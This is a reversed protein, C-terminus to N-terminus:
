SIPCGPGLSTTKGSACVVKFAIVSNLVKISSPKRASESLASVLSAAEIADLFPPILNKDCNKSKISVKRSLQRNTVFKGM